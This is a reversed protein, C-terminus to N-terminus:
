HLQMRRHSYARQGARHTACWGGIRMSDTQKVTSGASVSRSKSPYPPLSLYSALHIRQSSTISVQPQSTSANSSPKSASLPLSAHIPLNTPLPKATMTSPLHQSPISILHFCSGQREAHRFVIFLSGRSQLIAVPPLRCAPISAQKCRSRSSTSLLLGSSSLAYDRPSRGICLM